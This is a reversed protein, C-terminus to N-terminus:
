QSSAAKELWKLYLEDGEVIPVAIIEPVAYSHLSKVRAALDGFRQQTTKVLALIEAAEERAGEWFFLSRVGPLLNVCAALHEDVLVASIRKAEEFSPFTMFVIIPQSLPEAVM